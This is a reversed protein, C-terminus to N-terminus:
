NNNKVLPKTTWREIRASSSACSFIIQFKLRVYALTTQNDISKNGQHQISTESLQISALPHLGCFACPVLNIFIM